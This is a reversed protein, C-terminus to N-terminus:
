PRGQRGRPYSDAPGHLAGLKLGQGPSVARAASCSFRQAAVASGASQLGQAALGSGGSCSSCGAHGCGREVGRSAAAAWLPPGAGRLLRSGGGGCGAVSLLGRLCLPAGWGAGSLLGLLASSM